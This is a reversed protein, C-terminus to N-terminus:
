KGKREKPTNRHFRYLQPNVFARAEVSHVFHPGANITLIFHCLCNSVLNEKSLNVGLNFRNVRTDLNPIPFCFSQHAQIHGVPLALKGVQAIGARPALKFPMANGDDGASRARRVKTRRAKIGTM